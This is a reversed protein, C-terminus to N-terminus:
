LDESRCSYITFLDQNHANVVHGIRQYILPAPIAVTEPITQFPDFEFSAQSEIVPSETDIDTFTEHLHGGLFLVRPM